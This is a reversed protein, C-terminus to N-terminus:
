APLVPSPVESGIAKEAEERMDPFYNPTINVIIQLSNLEINFTFNYIQNDIIKLAWLRM